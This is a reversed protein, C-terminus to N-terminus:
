QPFEEFYLNSPELDVPFKINQQLQPIKIKFFRELHNSQDDLKIVSIIYKFPLFIKKLVM